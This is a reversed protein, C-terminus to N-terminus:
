FCICHMVFSYCKDIIICVCLCMEKASYEFHLDGQLIWRRGRDTQEASCDYYWTQIHGNGMNCSRLAFSSAFCLNLVLQYDTHACVLKSIESSCLPVLLSGPYRAQFSAFDIFLKQIDCFLWPLVGSLLLLFLFVDHAAQSNIGQWFQCRNISAIFLGVAVSSATLM